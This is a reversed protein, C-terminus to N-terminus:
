KQEDTLELPLWLASEAFSPDTIMISLIVSLEIPYKYEHGPENTEQSYYIHPVQLAQQEFATDVNTMPRHPEPLVPEAWCHLELPIELRPGDSMATM